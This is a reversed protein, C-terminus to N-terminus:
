FFCSMVGNSESLFYRTTITEAIRGGLKLSWENMFERWMKIVVNTIAIAITEMLMFIVAVFFIM